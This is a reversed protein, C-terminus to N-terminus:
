EIYGLARLRERYEREEVEDTEVPEMSTKKLFQYTPIKKVPRRKLFEDRFAETLVRRDMDEAAPLGMLHLVTPVIDHIGAKQIFQDRKLDKALVHMFNYLQYEREGEDYHEKYDPDYKFKTFAGLEPISDRDPIANKM